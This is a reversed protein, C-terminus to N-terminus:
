VDPKRRFDLLRYSNFSQKSRCVSVWRKAREPLQNECGDEILKFYEGSRFKDALPKNEALRFEDLGFLENDIFVLLREKFAEFTDWNDLDPKYFIDDLGSFDNNFVKTDVQCTKDSVKKWPLRYGNLIRGEEFLSM